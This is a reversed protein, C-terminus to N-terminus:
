KQPYSTEEKGYTGKEKAEELCKGSCYYKMYPLLNNWCVICRKKDVVSKFFSPRFDKFKLM